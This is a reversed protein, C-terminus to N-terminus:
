NAYRVADAIKIAMATEKVDHARIVNAGNLVSIAAAALSGTLRDSPEPQGLIHGIFAKRSTGAVIPKGLARLRGLGQLLLLNHDFTKGFGIGPDILIKDAPIGAKIATEIGDALYAAIEGFLDAYVPNAQMSRPTGKIHMIIVAANKKAVVYSMAPDGSLGSVDNVISAGAELAEEATRARYTDISIPIGLKPNKQTLWEIVPITRKLEVDQGVPEAGPRTSEGGVDIIDAGEGAMEFARAVAANKDFFRGGDSFSDPTVNLIGM